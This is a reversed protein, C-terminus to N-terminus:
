PKVWYWGVLDIRHPMLPPRRALFEDVARKCGPFQMYDDVVLLGGPVLRDYLLELCIKTSEYWDSDLRLLAIPGIDAAAAPMTDKFWGVHFHILSEPFRAREVLLARAIEPNIDLPKRKLDAVIQAAWEGDIAAPEPVGEFRDFLHLRRVPPNANAMHAMAMMASAGGMRVGCEVMAGAVGARDLWGIQWWLSALRDLSLVTYPAAIELAGRIADEDQYGLPFRLDIPRIPYITSRWGRWAAWPLIISGEVAAVVTRALGKLLQIM